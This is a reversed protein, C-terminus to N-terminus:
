KQTISWRRKSLKGLWPTHIIGIRHAQDCTHKFNISRLQWTTEEGMKADYLWFHCDQQCVTRVRVLDFKAYRIGRRTQVAYAIVTDKFEERLAFINKVEWKYSSIDKVDIHIPYRREYEYEDERDGVEYELDLEDNNFSDNNSNSENRSNKTAVNLHVNDGESAQQVNVSQVMLQNKLNKETRGRVDVYGVESFSEGEDVEHVVYMEVHSRLEATRCMELAERDIAFLKLDEELWEATLDKYWLVSINFNTYEFQRLKAYVEFVSWCDNEVDEILTKQERICQLTGQDYGFRGGHYVTLNFSEMVEIAIITTSRGGELPKSVCDLHLFLVRWAVIFRVTSQPFSGKVSPPFQLSSSIPMLQRTEVVAGHPFEDRHVQPILTNEMSTNVVKKRCSKKTSANVM